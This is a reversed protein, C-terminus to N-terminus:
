FYYFASKFIFYIVNVQLLNSNSFVHYKYISIRFPINKNKFHTGQKYVPHTAFHNLM